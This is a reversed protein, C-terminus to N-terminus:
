KAKKNGLLALLALGALTGEWALAFWLFPTAIGIVLMSLLRALGLGGYSALSLQLGLQQRDAAFCTLLLLGLGIELGGYMARVEVQAQSSLAQIGVGPLAMDPWCLLLIGFGLFGLGAITIVIINLNKM